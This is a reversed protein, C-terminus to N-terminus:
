SSHTKTAHAKRTWTHIQSHKGTHFCLSDIVSLSMFLGEKGKAPGAPMWPKRELSPPPRKGEWPRPPLLTPPSFLPPLIPSPAQGPSASSWPGSPRPLSPSPQPIIRPDWFQSQHQLQHSSTRSAMSVSGSPDGLYPPASCPLHPRPTLPHAVLCESLRIFVHLGRSQEM